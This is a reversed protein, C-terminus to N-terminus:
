NKIEGSGDFVGFMMSKGYVTKDIITDIIEVLELNDSCAYKKGEITNYIEQMLSYIRTKNGIIWMSKDMMITIKISNDNTPAGMVTTPNTISIFVKKNFPPENDIELVPQIFINDKVLEVSVDEKTDLNDIDSSEYFLLKRIKSNLLLDKKINFITDELRLFCSRDM